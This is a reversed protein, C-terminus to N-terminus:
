LYRKGKRAYAIAGELAEYFEKGYKRILGDKIFEYLPKKNKKGLSCAARCIEWKEYNVADYGDYKTVRVPYLHCSVPKQFDIKEDYYAKEIGCIAIGNEYNVYACPGKDEESTAQETILTTKYKGNADKTYKGRKEIANIGPQTLYPKITEYYKDLADLEKEELPAGGDGKVCCGGKCVSLDCTFYEDSLDDSVLVNDIVIM